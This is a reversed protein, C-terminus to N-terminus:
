FKAAEEQAQASATALAEAAVDPGGMLTPEVIIPRIDAFGMFGLITQMYRTQLDFDGVEPTGYAGGRSYIVAAPKGTILGDYGTEPSYNFTYTPQVLLDLYHKLPYPILFNWMPVAFVYKDASTFQEIVAEVARWAALEEASHAQGHLIAYKANLVAGDFPVLQTEFLNLTEVEDAPNARGHAKVFADAVAISKSREGRPSAQIYLVKSM